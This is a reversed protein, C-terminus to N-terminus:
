AGSMTKAAYGSFIIEVPGDSRSQWIKIMDPLMAQQVRLPLGTGFEIECARLKLQNNVYFLRPKPSNMDCANFYYYPLSHHSASISLQVQESLFEKHSLMKCVKGEIVDAGDAPQFTGINLAQSFNGMFDEPVECARGRLDAVQILTYAQETGLKEIMKGIAYHCLVANCGAGSEKKMREIEEWPVELTFTDKIRSSSIMNFMMKILSKFGIKCWNRQQVAALTQKENLNDPDPILSQDVKMPKTQEGMARRGWERVLSYFSVGDMLAHAGQLVIASADKLRLLFAQLAPTQGKKFGNIDYKPVLNYMDEDRSHDRLDLELLEICSESGSWLVAKSKEDYRGLLHPYQKLTQELSDYLDKASPLSSYIWAGKITMGLCFTDLPSLKWEKM